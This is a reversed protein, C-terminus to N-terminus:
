ISSVTIQINGIQGNIFTYIIGQLLGVDLQFTLTYSQIGPTGGSGSLFLSYSDEILGQQFSSFSELVTFVATLNYNINSEVIFTLSDEVIDGWNAITAYLDLRSDSLNTIKLYEPVTIYIPVTFEENTAFSVSSIIIVFTFIFTYKLKQVM